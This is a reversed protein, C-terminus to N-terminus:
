DWLSVRKIEINTVAAPVIIQTRAPPLIPMTSLMKNEIMTLVKNINDTSVQHRFLCGDLTEFGNTEITINAM